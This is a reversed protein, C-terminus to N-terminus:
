CVLATVRINSLAFAQLLENAIDELSKQPADNYFTSDYNFFMLRGPPLDEPLFDRIWSIDDHYAEVRAKKM